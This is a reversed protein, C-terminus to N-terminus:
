PVPYKNLEFLSRYIYEYTTQHNVFLDILNFKDSATFEELKVKKRGFDVLKM